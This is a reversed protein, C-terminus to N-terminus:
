FSQSVRAYFYRGMFDYTSSDSDADFGIYILAPRQDLLNNVGATLRTTGARSKFVHGAFLDATVNAAVDRADEALNEPTNCDNDVCEQYGHIYRVNLGASTGKRDWVTSFNAKLRPYVGLDYFGVGQLQSASTDVVLERLYQGELQHRFRGARPVEHRYAIAFDFGSTATGGVNLVPDDIFDIKYNLQPDRHTQACDESQDRTYCNALIVQAGLGQIADDIEIDFYDFTFSLGKVQPPEYVLGATFVNATEADLAPNGGIVARQQTETYIAGAPVGQEACRRNTVEDETPTESCPDTASPFDDAAGQYLEAVSPARFATSYTGRLAVGGFTKLLAGAKGTVGGGFTDYHFARAALSIESWQAGRLGSVPVISLEAFAERVDYSGGTPAQANGTTDGISTLPDPTFGGAERRYDAGVAMSIDGRNPLKTIRGSAQVLATKQDNFGTSVGTFTVYAAQAPDISGPPGMLNMPVCGPIVDGPTGCRAVGEADLFSPGLANALRSV